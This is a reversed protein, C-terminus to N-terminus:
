PNAFLEMQEGIRKQYLVDGVRADVCAKADEIAQDWGWEGYYGWVSGVFAGDLDEVAWGYVAGELYASYTEVEGRLVREAKALVKKTIYKVNYEARLRDYTVYIYGVRSTDWGGPDVDWGSEVKMWLGSHDLLVLPLALVDKRNAIGRIREVDLDHKDGLSYHPHLCLMTGLNDWERPSEATDDQEMLINFGKYEITEIAM